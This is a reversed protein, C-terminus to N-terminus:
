VDQILRRQFQRSKRHIKWASYMRIVQQLSEMASELQSLESLEIWKATLNRIKTSRIIEVNPKFEGFLMSTVKIGLSM